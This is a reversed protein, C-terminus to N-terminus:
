RPLLAFVRLRIVNRRERQEGLLGVGGLHLGSPAVSGLLKHVLEAAVALALDRISFLLFFGILLESYAIHRL